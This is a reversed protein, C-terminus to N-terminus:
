KLNFSQQFYTKGRINDHAPLPAPVSPESPTAMGNKILREVFQYTCCELQLAIRAAETLKEAGVKRHL